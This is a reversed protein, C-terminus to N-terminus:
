GRAAKLLVACGAGVLLVGILRLLTQNALRLHVHGGLYMGLVLIPLGALLSWWLTAHALLGAFLGVLFRAGGDLMFIASLTARIRAKDRLRRTIYIVYPPGGTGFLGSIAGGILGTPISWGRSIHPQNEMDMFLNRLGALVIYVGLMALIPTQPASVLLTTGLLLGVLTPGILTRVEAWQVQKRETRGLWISAALDLLMVTPVAQTLPLFLALLPVAILGSGFGAIGRVFYAFFLIGGALAADIPPM